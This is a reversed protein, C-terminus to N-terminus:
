ECKLTEAPNTKSAKISHFAVTGFSILLGVLGGGLFIWVTLDVHYAFGLLWQQAAYYSIPIAIFMSVVVLLSFQKNLMLVINRVSAGLVKRIGIEKTRQETTYAALGFLGLCSILIALLTFFGIAKGLVEEKQLMEGFNEDMFHYEFPDDAVQKWETEAYQLLASADGSRLKLALQAFFIGKTKETQLKIATPAITNRLSEWHFDNVVGIVKLEKNLVKGIADDGLNLASVAAENLIVSATDSALDKDFDRGSILKYGMVKVYDHDGFYTNITLENSMDPTKYTYFSLIAKNGPEGAHLSASIVEPRQELKDKFILAATSKVDWLNDITVVNEQQFGLDKGSMFNLQRLIISTCIILGISISFQFVVLAHRFTQSGAPGAGGKLVKVPHFSTLYFAPYIGALLGVLVSFVVVALISAFNTWLSISLQQGTIWFFAFTFLEALGLALVMAFTSIVVSELLFQIILKGRSTGLSKRVGVEKARRTARATSLNIFNVAALVLIFVAVISFIYLNTENGGPSLELSLKSKLYIDRLPYVIFKVSNPNKKYDELSIKAQQSGSADYVQKDIIRDLARELDIQGINEKLLVYSYVAASTWYHKIKPDYVRTVWVSAKLHSNHIDDAVIGTVTYPAKEKGVDITKGLVRTEGFYKKAAGETLVMSFPKQLATTAEGELFSRPFVKFFATDSYFVRDQFSKDGITLVEKPNNQFATFAEIGEFEKPLFEALLEPGNAFNGMNFFSVGVRYIRAGNKIHRDHSWEGYVYLFIILSCALGVALGLINIFSYLFQRKLNRLAITLFNRLM